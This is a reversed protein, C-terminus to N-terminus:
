AVLSQLMDALAKAYLPRVTEAATTAFLKPQIWRTGFEQYAAYHAAWYILMSFESEQIVSASNRLFSTDVPTNPISLRLIDFATKRVVASTKRPMEGAIKKFDNKKIEVSINGRM